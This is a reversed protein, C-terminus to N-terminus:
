LPLAMQGEVRSIIITEHQLWFRSVESNKILQKFAVRVEIFLGKILNWEPLSLIGKIEAPVKVSIHKETSIKYHGRPLYGLADLKLITTLPKDLM